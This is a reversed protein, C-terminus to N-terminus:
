DPKVATYWEPSVFWLLTGTGRRVDTPLHVLMAAAKDFPVANEDVGLLWGAYSSITPMHGVVAATDVALEQVFPVLKKPRFEDPTLHDCLVFDPKESIQLLPSATQIARALPSTVIAGLRVGRAKVAAMLAAAQERGRDTLYRDADTAAGPAYREVAEAHRVLLIQM